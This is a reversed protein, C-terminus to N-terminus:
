IIGILIMLYSFTNIIIIIIIIIIVKIRRFKNIDFIKDFLSDSLNPASDGSRLSYKLVLSFM